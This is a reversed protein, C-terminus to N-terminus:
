VALDAADLVEIKFILAPRKPIHDGARPIPQRAANSRVHSAVGALVYACM